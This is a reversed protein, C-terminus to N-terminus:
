RGGGGRNKARQWKPSSPAPLALRSMPAASLAAFALTAAVTRVAHSLQWHDRVTAWDDPPMTVIWDRQDANIPLNVIVTLILVGALLAFAIIPLWRTPGRDRFRAAIILATAILAPLLTVSALVDLWELEIQRVQTYVAATADRMSLELVLVAILFGAFIGSFVQAAFHAITRM